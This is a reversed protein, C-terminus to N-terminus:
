GRRFAEVARRASGIAMGWVAVPSPTRRPSVPLSGRETYAMLARVLQGAQGMTLDRTSGLADLGLVAGSVALREGRDGEAFGLRRFEHMVAGLQASTAPETALVANWEDRTL